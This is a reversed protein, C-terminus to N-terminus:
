MCETIAQIFGLKIESWYEMKYSFIGSNEHQLYLPEVNFTRHVATSDKVRYISRFTKITLINRFESPLQHISVVHSYLRFAGNVM